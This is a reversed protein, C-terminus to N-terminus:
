SIEELVLAQVVEKQTCQANPLSQAAIFLSKSLSFKQIDKRTFGYINTSGTTPTPTTNSAPSPHEYYSNLVKNFDPYVTNLNMPPAGTSGNIATTLLKAIAGPLAHPTESNM